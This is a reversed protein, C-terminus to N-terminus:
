QVSIKIFHFFLLKKFWYNKEKVNLSKLFGYKNQSLKQPSENLSNVIFCYRSFQIGGLLSKKKKIFM